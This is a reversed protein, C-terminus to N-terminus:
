TTLHLRAFAQELDKQLDSKDELGFCLRILNKKIGMRSKEGETLSLHSGTYPQAVSSVVAAMSTGVDFLELSRMFASVKQEYKEDLEFFLICGYDKLQRQNTEPLYIRVVEKRTNLFAAMDKLKQVHDRMRLGFTQMSRRLLWCSHPDLIAGGYFRFGAISQAISDSNTSIVGAMCDSHGSYFKTASVVCIDAGLDLPKQFYPTAWTNDVVVWAEPCKKKTLRSVDEICITKLLPNTPTEFFVMKTEKRIKSTWKVNDTLDVVDLSIGFHSCHDELLKFSCGYILENILVHDGPRLLRLCLNIATMGTTVALAHKCGELKTFVSELESCNPNGKRTYFYPSDSLFASNQFLPTVNPRADAIEIRTHLIKTDASQGDSAM